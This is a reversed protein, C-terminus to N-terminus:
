VKRVTVYIKKARRAREQLEVVYSDLCVFPSHCIPMETQLPRIIQEMTFIYRWRACISRMTWAARSTLLWYYPKLCQPCEKFEPNSKSYIFLQMFRAVWPTPLMAFNLKEEEVDCRRM